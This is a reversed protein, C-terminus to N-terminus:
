KPFRNPNSTAPSKLKGNLMGALDNKAPLSSKGGRDNKVDPGTRARINTELVITAVASGVDLVVVMRNKAHRGLHVPLAIKVKPRGIKGNVAPDSNARRAIAAGSVVVRNGIVKSGVRM